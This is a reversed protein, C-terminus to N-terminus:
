KKDQKDPTRLVGARSKMKRGDKRLPELRDKNEQDQSINRGHAKIKIVQKELHQQYM